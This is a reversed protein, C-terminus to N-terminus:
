EGRLVVAPNTSAVRRAPLMTAVLSVVVLLLTALVFEAANTPTVEYLLSRM